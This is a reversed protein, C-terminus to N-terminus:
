IIGSIRSICFIRFLGGCNASPSLSSATGLLGGFSPATAASAATAAAAALKRGGRYFHCLAARCALRLLGSLARGAALLRGPVLQHLLLQSRAEAEAIRELGGLLIVALLHSVTSFIFILFIRQTENDKNSWRANLIGTPRRGSSM